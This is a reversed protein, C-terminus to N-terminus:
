KRLERQLSSLEQPDSEPSRNSLGFAVLGGLVVLVAGIVWLLMGGTEQKESPQPANLPDATEAVAPSPTIPADTTAGEPEEKEEQVTSSATATTNGERGSGLSDGTPVTAIGTGVVATTLARLGVPDTFYVLHNCPAPIVQPAPQRGVPVSTISEVLVAIDNPKGKFPLEVLKGLKKMLRQKIDADPDDPIQSTDGAIITYPVGPDSAAALEALFDSSPLMQDLSVDINEIRTLVTNLLKLPAVALSLGNVALAVAATLGAQVQPWPSGANPTGLMILHQVVDNGDAQEIFSRSVLGGMSHAIIHLQKGHNAGLGVDNLRKKLLLGNREISTNINEYDFALVLDYLDSIPKAEGEIQAIASDISPLMSETDGFIGHVYLAIKQAKAIADRIAGADHIYTVNNDQVQAIALRPYDYEIGVQKSLTKGLKKAAVKQFYIRISGQISRTTVAGDAMPETLKQLTIQTEGAETKGYGLPLFFEGDYAVPLIYEDEELPMNTTIQLPNEPTVVEPNEVDDLELVSLGPDTGRTTTFQIPEIGPTERLLPPLVQNGVARTSQPKTTLRVKAKLGSHPQVTIGAGISVPEQESVVTAERPRVYTFTIQNASWDDYEDESAPRRRTARTMVRKMLHNLTGKGAKASRSAGAIPTGLEELALLTPDWEDTCAILKIVDQTETIGRKWISTPVEGYFLEGGDVWLEQKPRLRVTVNNALLPCVEYQETLALVGCYLTENSNNVLKMCYTPQQWRGTAPDYDYELRIQPSDIRQAEDKNPGVFAQMEVSGRIRSNAPSALAVISAWRAMHELKQVVDRASYETYTAPADSIQPAEGRRCLSYSGNQALLQFDAAELVNSEAIYLSPTLNPGAKSLAQRVLILGDEDGAMSVTIKPLPLGVVVAKFTADTLNEAGSTIRLKSRQPQVQTIEAEAIAKSVEKLGEAPTDFPFLALLTTEEGTPAVMGHIAGGDIVWGEKPHQSATFYPSSPAIAGGLFPQDLDKSDTAEMQPSQSRVNARVLANTRKFLDRYTLSGNATQLSEMLFYSFSGHQSGDLGCYEKAEEIDQCASLLVHRGKTFNLGMTMPKLSRTAAQTEQVQEPSVLFSGAPRQRRDTPAKRTIEDGRTGSGSHCCDLILSIHPKKADVEGILQALEKDALDWSGEVRSDYCVLTELLRDPEVVWFEEPAFAQAGHGAYYFLAIDDAGAQCLHQRFGDIVAQRTAQENLLVKLQLDVDDQAVRGELYAQMCQIDKVCGQLPPVRSREDYENIGVLFAFLRRTM